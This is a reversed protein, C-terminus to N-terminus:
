YYFYGPIPCIQYDLKSSSSKKLESIIQEIQKELKAIQDTSNTKNGLEIYKQYLILLDENNRSM